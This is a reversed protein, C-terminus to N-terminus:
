QGDTGDETWRHRWHWALHDETVIRLTDNEENSSDILVLTQRCDSCNFYAAHVAVLMRLWLTGDHNGNSLVISVNGDKNVTFRYPLDNM